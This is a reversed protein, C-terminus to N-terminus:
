AAVKLIQLKFGGGMRLVDGNAVVVPKVLKANLLWNAGGAAGALGDWASVWRVTVGSTMNWQPPTGTTITFGSIDPPALTGASLTLVDTLNAMGENGPDDTHLQFCFTPAVFPVNRLTGLLGSVLYPSLGEAM